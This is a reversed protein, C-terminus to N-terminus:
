IIDDPEGDMDESNVSPDTPQEDIGDPPEGNEDPRGGMGSPVEGNIDPRGGMGGRGGGNGGGMGGPRGGFGGMGGTTGYLLSDMTFTMNASGATLTYTEGQKLQPTSLLVCDYAKEATFSVITKGSSDTLTVTTDAQQASVSLLIAGQTSDTGFNQAMGSSGAALFVGGTITANGAYDLSANGNDSPGFVYTEGGSVTISGNSDIGDGSASIRLTGGSISIYTNQDSAFRDGGFGSEDTGGAANLGDDSATVIISGGSIEIKQGELGEYSQTVTVTGDSIMLTGDAHAGDDGTQLTLEGGSISISGNSHLADDAADIDFKGGLICLVGGAKLGKTSATDETNSSEMPTGFRGFGMNTKPAANASGGGSTLQYDGNEIQLVTAASMADGQATIKFSGDVIYVGGSSSDDANEAHIGDKGSNITFSGGAIAVSDKGCLGHSAATVAYTGSTVTLEDKSVIGHGASANVTLSGEGNMTLDDKSFIAADINNEDIAIYEGGNELTNESGAATTLFVKDASRIYLAASSSSTVTVGDLILQIKDTKEADIIISGDKLTGSLLYSGEETITVVSGAVSVANSSSTAGDGTLTIRVCENEDYGVEYDRDSFFEALMEPTAATPTQTAETAQPTGGTGACGGLLLLAALLSLLNTKKM